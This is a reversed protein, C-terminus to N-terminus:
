EDPGLWKVGSFVGVHVDSTRTQGDADVRRVRYRTPGLNMFPDRWSRIPEDGGSPRIWEVRGGSRIVDARIRGKDYWAGM